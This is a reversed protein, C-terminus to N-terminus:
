DEATLHLSNWIGYWVYGLHVCVCLQVSCLWFFESNMHNIMDVLFLNFENEKLLLQYLRSLSRQIYSFFVWIALYMSVFIRIAKSMGLIIKIKKCFYKEKCIHLLQPCSGVQLFNQSSLAKSKRFKVWVLWFRFNILFHGHKLLKFFLNWHVRFM